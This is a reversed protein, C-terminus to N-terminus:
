LATLWASLATTPSLFVVLDFTGSGQITHGVDNILKGGWGGGGLGTMNFIGTGTLTVTNNLHRQVRTLASTITGNNTLSVTTGSSPAIGMGDYAIVQAGPAITIGEQFTTGSHSEIRGPGFSINRVTTQQLYILGDQPLIQGGNYVTPNNGFLRLRNGAGSAKMVSGPAGSVGANIYLDGNDAIIQGHNEVFAPITGGGRITHNTDNIYHGGWGSGGLSDIDVLGGLVLNGSGTFTMTAPGCGLLAEGGPDTNGSITVTGNNLFTFPNAGYEFLPGLSGGHNIALQSGPGVTLGAIAYQRNINCLGTNIIAADYGGPVGTNPNWNAKDGWEGTPGGIWNYVAAHSIGTALLLCMLVLATVLGTKKPNM